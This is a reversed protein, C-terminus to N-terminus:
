HAAKEDTEPPLQRAARAIRRISFALMVVAIIHVIVHASLARHEKSFFFHQGLQRLDFSLVYIHMALLILVAIWNPQLILWAAATAIVTGCVLLPYDKGILALTILWVAYGGSIAGTPLCLWRPRALLKFGAVGIILATGLPWFLHIGAYSAVFYVAVLTVILLLIWLLPPISQKPTSPTLPAHM